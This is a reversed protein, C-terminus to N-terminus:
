SWIRLDIITVITNNKTSIFYILAIRKKKHLFGLEFDPKKKKIKNKKRKKFYKQGRPFLAM